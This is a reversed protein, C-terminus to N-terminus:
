YVNILVSYPHGAVTFVQLGRLLIGVNTDTCRNTKKYGMRTSGLSSENHATNDDSM